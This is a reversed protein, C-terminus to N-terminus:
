SPLSWHFGDVTPVLGGEFLPQEAARREGLMAQSQIQVIEKQFSNLFSAPNVKRDAWQQLSAPNVKRDAWQQFMEGIGKRESFYEEASAYVREGTPGAGGVLRVFAENAQEETNLVKRANWFYSEKEQHMDYFAMLFQYFNSYERRYRREFETFCAQEDLEGRLCTNISRAALLASYTALHVGSSFVPDIFCAADGILVIGPSWFRENAYSYDKRVRFQGYMGETVRTAPQLYEKIIPCAEIFGDMAIEFGDRLQEAQDRSVVAGVSTLEQSLPIYWFWGGEFAACLINGENPPPLRKGDRFYCFLAVNRFFKSYLREGVLAALRSQNGSADAVFSANFTRENGTDDTATIGVVRGDDARMLEKVANNERVDVGNRKANELLISDFKSREVQYAFGTPGPFVTSGFTFTWPKPQKGWRFTGGRKLMFKANKLEDSVGLMVCIGHITAPLLSEGIQYRPFRERELLLVKHGQMAVFTAVTSGSPGGGVVILDFKERDVATM